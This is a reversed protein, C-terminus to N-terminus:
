ASVARAAARSLIDGDAHDLAALADLLAPATLKRAGGLDPVRDQVIVRPVSMEGRESRSPRTSATASPAVGISVTGLPNGLRSLSSPPPNRRPSRTTRPPSTPLPLLARARAM